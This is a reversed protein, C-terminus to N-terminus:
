TTGWGDDVVLQMPINRNIPLNDIRRDVTRKNGNLDTFILRPKYVPITDPKLKYTRQGILENTKNLYASITIEKDNGNLRNVKWYLINIPKNLKGEKVEKVPRYFSTIEAIYECSIRGKDTEIRIKSYFDKESKLNIVSQNDRKIGNIDKTYEKPLIGNIFGSVCVDYPYIRLKLEDNQTQATAGFSLLFM